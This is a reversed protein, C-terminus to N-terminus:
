LVDGFQPLRRWAVPARLFLLLLLLLLCTWKYLVCYLQHTASESAWDLNRYRYAAKLWSPTYKKAVIQGAYQRRVNCRRLSALCSWSCWSSTSIIAGIIFMTLQNCKNCPRSTCSYPFMLYRHRWSSDVFDFRYEFLFLLIGTHIPRETWESKVAIFLAKANLRIILPWILVELCAETGIYEQMENQIPVRSRTPLVDTSTVWTFEM